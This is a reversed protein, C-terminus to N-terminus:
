TRARSRRAPAPRAKFRCCATTSSSRSAFPTASRPTSKAARPAVAAARQRERASRARTSPSSARTAAAAADARRRARALRARAAAPAAAALRASRSAAGPADIGNAAIWRGIELLVGPKPRPSVMRRVFVREPRVDAFRGQTSSTSRTRPSTSASSRASRSAPSPCASRTAAACTTSRRRFCTAISPSARRAASPRRRVRAGRAGLARGRLGRAAPRAAPLVGVVRSEGRPSAVRAAAGHALAGAAGRQARRRRRARRALLATMVRQTEEAAEAVQESAEGSDLEAAAAARRRERARSRRAAERALRALAGRVRLRRPQLARRRRHARRVQERGPEADLGLELQPKPAAPKAARSRLGLDERMEIAWELARRSATAIRLDQERTLGYFQELDKLSYTEVSARLSHRVITHLDVFLEARLITDLETERTAYRGSLRKFATPEYAGFHYVHM